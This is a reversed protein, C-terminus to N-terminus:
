REVHALGKAGGAPGATGSLTGPHMTGGRQAGAIELGPKSGALRQLKHIHALRHLQLQGGHGFRHDVQGQAARLLPQLPDALQKIALAVQHHEAM